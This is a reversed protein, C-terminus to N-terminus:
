FNLYEPLIGMLWMMLGRIPGQNKWCRKRAKTVLADYDCVKDCGCIPQVAESKRERLWNMKFLSKLICKKPFERATWPNPSLVKVALPWPKRARILSSLDWLGHPVALLLFTKLLISKKSYISFSYWKVCVSVACTFVYSNFSKQWWLHNQM